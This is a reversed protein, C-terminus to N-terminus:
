TTPTDAVTKSATPTQRSTFFWMLGVVVGAMAPIFFAWRWGASLRVWAVFPPM